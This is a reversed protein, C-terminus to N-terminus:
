SPPPPPSKSICMYGVAMNLPICMDTPIHSHLNQPYTYMISVYVRDTSTSSGAREVANQTSWNSSEFNERPLAGGAPSSKFISKNLIGGEGRGRPLVADLYM